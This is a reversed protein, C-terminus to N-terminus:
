DYRLAVLPDVRTARRAPLYSAILAVVLLILSVAGFTIADTPRVGYLLSSLLRTAALAAALGIALGIGALRVGFSLVDWVIQGQSAGLAMRIGIDRTRQAVMYSLVGYIGVSSLLLATAAFIALLFTDFHSRELTNSIKQQMTSLRYIPVAPAVSSVTTQLEHVPVVGGRTRVVLDMTRGIWDWASPPMQAIPIYFAPQVQRDLGQARVDGVEGVVEHWVPDMRGKPGAECCAFRKGIPNESPWMTRALTENVIAVFTRDRTDQQTFDRGAKLPVRATSLYSPSIIQLQSNVLNSMDFPKGEALLGNSSGGGALPARSVVAVSEVGPLAAAATIMREFTQRAVSPDHYGPDPLGVRGVIVNSTDFGPDVHSVLLASRILLGAGVMLVLALAVEGVVLLSRVRDRSGSVIGSASKFAESLRTSASRLAPALGFLFSSLLAVVCAFALTSADIRSQDLRPMEAPGNAVIWSVAWYALLVGAVGGALGLVVNEALLQRVIRNPSAGLAARMAIEKQRARSRALQLNAINACAILLLFGVAALMIRLSLRQDGLLVNALPQIRFSRDADDLPYRQQLRHAILELESQAKTMAVESKLRAMVNLYHNDHDALQVPTFAAPVWLNSNSLLPDFGKPMVGVVTTPLGNVRIPKGIISPDAHLRTRWLRESIVVVPAQGPRDEDATFVRGAIPQVGFTAFYDFTAVEGDVREPIDRTELNFSANNSCSVEVYSSSEKKIDNFNGVSIDGASGKWWEQLLVVHSPDQISLPRLLVADVVSFIATTAGIGLALTLVAVTTFGPNKRLTRFGFRVDQWCTELVSEWGATRVVEKTVELNGRELRVARLADKRSMGQKMKEVAEMELYARLEEDLDRDAQEKRFLSRLGSTINRLFSM